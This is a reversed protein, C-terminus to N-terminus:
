VADGRPSPAAALSAGFGVPSVFLAVRLRAANGFAFEGFATIM